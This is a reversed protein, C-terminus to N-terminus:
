RQGNRGAQTVVTDAEHRAAFVRATSIAHFTRWHRWKAHRGRWQQIPATPWSRRPSTQM